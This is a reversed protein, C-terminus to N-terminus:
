RGVTAAAGSPPGVGMRARVAEMTEAALGRARQAGAALVEELQAEDARLTQFRERVPALSCPM